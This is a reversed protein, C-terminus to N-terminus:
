HPEGKTVKTLAYQLARSYHHFAETYATVTDQQEPTFPDYDDPLTPVPPPVEDADTDEGRTQHQARDANRRIAGKKRTTYAQM